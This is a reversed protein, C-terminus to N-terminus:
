DLRGKITNRITEDIPRFQFNLAKCVKANDYEMSKFATRATEPTIVPKKRNFKSLLWALKCVIGM